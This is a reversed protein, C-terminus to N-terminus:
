YKNTVVQANKPDYFSLAWVSVCIVDLLLKEFNNSDNSDKHIASININVLFQK